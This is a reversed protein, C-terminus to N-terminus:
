IPFCGGVQQELCDIIDGDELGLDAATSLPNIREGDFSQRISSFDLGLKEAFARIVKDM